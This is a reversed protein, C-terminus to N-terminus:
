WEKDSVNQVSLCSRSLKVKIKTFVNTAYNFAKETM